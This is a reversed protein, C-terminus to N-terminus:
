SVLDNVVRPRAIRIDKVRPSEPLLPGLRLLGRYADGSNAALKQSRAAHAHCVPSAILLLSFGGGGVRRCTRADPTATAPVIAKMGASRAAAAGSGPAPLIRRVAPLLIRSTLPLGAGTNPRKLGFPFGPMVSAGPSRKLTSRTLRAPVDVMM